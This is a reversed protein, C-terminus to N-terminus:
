RRKSRNQKGSSYADSISKVEQQIFDSFDKKSMTKGSFQKSQSRGLIFEMNKDSIEGSGDTDFHDFLQHVLNEKLVLKPELTAALWKNYSVKVQENNEGFASTFFKEFNERTMGVGKMGVWVEEKSLSGKNETDLLMFKARLKELRDADAHHAALMLLSRQVKSLSSFHSFREMSADMESMVASRVTSIKPDYKTLYHMGLVDSLFPRKKPNRELLGKCVAAAEQDFGEAELPATIIRGRKIAKFLEKRNITTAFPHIPHKGVLCIYLMVGLSWNDCKMGYPLKQDVVEPAMFYSTGCVESMWRGPMDSPKMIASLGFDIVKAIRDRGEMRVTQLLVNDFKLDRHAVQQDHCYSVARVADRFLNRIEEPHVGILDAFDGDDCLETVLFVKEDDEYFDVLKVINPHDLSIMLKVEDEILKADDTMHKKAIAKIARPLKTHVQVAQYVVGFGGSGIQEIDTYNQSLDRSPALGVM